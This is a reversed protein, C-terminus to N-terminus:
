CCKWSKIRAKDKTGTALSGLGVALTPIRQLSDVINLSKLQKLGLMHVQLIKLRSDWIVLEGECLLVRGSGIQVRVDMPTSKVGLPAQM